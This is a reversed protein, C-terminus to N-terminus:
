IRKRYYDFSCETLDINNRALDFSMDREIMENIDEVYRTSFNIPLMEVLENPELKLPTHEELIRKTRGFEQNDFEDLDQPVSTVSCICRDYWDYWIFRGPYKEALMCCTEYDQDHSNSLHVEHEIVFDMAQWDGIQKNIYDAENMQEHQVKITSALTRDTMIFITKDDNAEKIEVEFRYEALSSHVKDSGDNLKIVDPTKERTCTGSMTEDIVGGEHYVLSADTNFQPYAGDEQPIFYGDSNLHAIQAWKKVYDGPFDESYNNQKDEDKSYSSILLLLVLIFLLKRM